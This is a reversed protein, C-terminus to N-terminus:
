IFRDGNNMIGYKLGAIEFIRALWEEKAIFTGAPLTVSKLISKGLSTTTLRKVPANEIQAAALDHPVIQFRKGSCVTAVLGSDTAEISSLVARATRLTLYLRYLMLPLGIASIIALHSNNTDLGQGWAMLVMNTIGFFSFLFFPVGLVVGLVIFKRFEKEEVFM